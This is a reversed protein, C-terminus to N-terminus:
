LEGIETRFEDETWVTIGLQKAKDLKSGASEGALVYDTNKSVSSTTTGGHKEILEKAENRTYTPLTGTLVVKKGELKKSLLRAQEQELALGADKLKQVLEQNKEKQFFAEVSEAIKPGISDINTMTEADARILADLSQFHSALDKAVTKGVFRIGLAYIVRDLSQKKSKGIANILNQASKEGMRELPVIDEKKLTYLDAYTKILDQQLLLEVVAEGLGEIDMADRSAFHTVRERVQPPCQPNICRWAVEGDLKVLEDGCAPCNKPMSFPANRNEADPNMVSVVQPIIEGAKEVIVTDGERIDKRQIEDENHLSARKVTTGALFVPKLEAVPTIKGLRGVQLTISELVTTAQEAEFKYAIAWRPFKSTTGLEEYFKEENVKLVVGDTEYPLDPRIRGWRDIVDFVDDISKCVEFHECVQFGYEKLLHLKKQHTTNQDSNEMLLDFAFFKIPRRAVERSDQMKLSGATSNRPNAFSPLGQEERNENMRVFAEKEMYAEGRVELVEPSDTNLKLPIDRITKLNQTIDDGREGDGRTAGLVFEGNEYRLRISAGDFKMECSYTYDSHGLIDRVRRDFDRLEEENYTNDLSLMRTPHEVTPFESSPEGGVRQTPSHETALGFEQELKDLEELAEDFERDSIFPHAEQYYAKNARNLLDRLEEVRKKASAKDM